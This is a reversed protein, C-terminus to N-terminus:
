GKKGAAARARMRAAEISTPAPVSEHEKALASQMAARVEGLSVLYKMCKPNAGTNTARTPLRGAKVWAVITEASPRGGLARSAEPPTMLEAPAPSADKAEELMEEVILRIAAVMAPGLLDAVAPAGNAARRVYFAEGARSSTTM